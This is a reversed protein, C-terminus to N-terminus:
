VRAGAHAEFSFPYPTRDRTGTALEAAIRGV